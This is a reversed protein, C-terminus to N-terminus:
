AESMFVRKLASRHADEGKYISELFRGIAALEGKELLVGVRDTPVQKSDLRLPAPNFCPKGSGVHQQFGVEVITTLNGLGGSKDLKKPKDIYNDIFVVTEGYIYISYYYISEFIYVATRAM